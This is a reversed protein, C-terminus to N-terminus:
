NMIVVICSNIFSGEFLLIIASKEMCFPNEYKQLNQESKSSTKWIIVELCLSIKTRNIAYIFHLVKYIFLRSWINDM